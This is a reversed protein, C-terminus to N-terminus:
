GFQWRFYSSSVACMYKFVFSACVITYHHIQKLISVARHTRILHVLLFLQALRLFSLSCSSVAQVPILGCCCIDRCREVYSDLCLCVSKLKCFFHILMIIDIAVAIFQSFICDFFEKYAKYTPVGYEDDKVALISRTRSCKNYSYKRKRMRDQRRDAKKSLSPEIYIFYQSM